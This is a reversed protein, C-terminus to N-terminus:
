KNIYNRKMTGRRLKINKITIPAILPFIIKRINIVVRRLRPFQDKLASRCTDDLKMLEDLSMETLNIKLSKMYPSQELYEVEEDLSLNYRRIYTEYLPTNPFPTAYFYGGYFGMKKRWAVTELATEHTEGPHGFIFTPSVEMGALNILRIANEVQEITEGKKMEYLVKNSGSEIGMVIRECGSRKMKRLLEFDDVTILDGRSSCRWKIGLPQIHGCLDSM